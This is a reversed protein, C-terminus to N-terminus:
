KPNADRGNSERERDNPGGRCEIRRRACCSRCVRCSESRCVGGESPDIAIRTRDCFRYHISGLNAEIATIRVQFAALNADAHAHLSHESSDRRTCM